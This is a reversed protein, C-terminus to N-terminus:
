ELSAMGARSVMVLEGRQWRTLFDEDTAAGFYISCGPVLHDHLEAVCVDVLGM